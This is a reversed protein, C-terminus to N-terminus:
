ALTIQNLNSEFTFPSQYALSSHLRVRNYFTEIYDFIATRAAAYTAFRHHYVLEYKAYELLVRHPRQRLLQRQSEDFRNPSASRASPSLGRQRVPPRPRLPPHFDSPMRGSTGGLPKAPLSQLAARGRAAKKLGRLQTCSM